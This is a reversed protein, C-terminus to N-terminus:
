LVSKVIWDSKRTAARGKRVLRKPDAPVGRQHLKHRCGIAVDLGYLMMASSRCLDAGRDGKM